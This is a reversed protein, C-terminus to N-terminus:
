RPVITQYTAEKLVDLLEAPTVLLVTPNSSPTSGVAADRVAQSRYVVSGDVPSRMYECIALATKESPQRLSPVVVVPVRRSIFITEMGGDARQRSRKSRHYLRDDAGDRDTPQEVVGMAEDWNDDAFCSNMGITEHLFGAGHSRAEHNIEAVLGM